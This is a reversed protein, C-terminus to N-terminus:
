ARGGESLRATLKTGWKGSSQRFRVKFDQATPKSPAKSKKMMEEKEEKQQTETGHRQKDLTGQITPVQM